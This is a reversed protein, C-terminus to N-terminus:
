PRGDFVGTRDDRRVAFLTTVDQTQRVGWAGDRCVAILGYRYARQGAEGITKDLAQNLSAGDEVRTVIRAAAAHDVIQEGIGTCSVGAAASAYTGAVTASDSVRGPTEFGVGGTSTGACIVAEDDVAVAGVTASRGAIRERYERLRHETVPDYEAFGKERAYATAQEGALVRHKQAALLAAVEIPHRVREINIVGSFSGTVSDMLAASMRAKADRQLRSGTGANFLADDELLKIAHIVAARAGDSQLVRYGEAVIGVLREAYAEFGAHRGERAGAGGHIILTAM